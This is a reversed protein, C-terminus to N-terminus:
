PHDSPQRFRANSSIGDIYFNQIFHKMGLELVSMGYSRAEHLAKPNPWHDHKIRYCAIVTGTRDAGRRCHVFVPGNSSSDLVALIKLIEVTTPASVRGMPESVYQMGAAEVAKSERDISHEGPLRLDVVKKVGLKALSAWGEASPQGGRFLHQNVEHFNPVGPAELDAAHTSFAWLGAALCLVLNRRLM